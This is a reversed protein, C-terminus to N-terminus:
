VCVSKKEPLFSGVGTLSSALQEGIYIRADGDGIDYASREPRTAHILEHDVVLSLYHERERERDKKVNYTVMEFSPAVIKFSSSTTWGAPFARTSMEREWSASTPSPVVLTHHVGEREEYGRLHWTVRNADSSKRSILCYM